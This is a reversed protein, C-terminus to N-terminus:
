GVTLLGYSPPVLFRVQPAQGREVGIGTSVYIANGDVESLGGAAVDRDVRETATVPPGFLPIAVQGGHTHGSIVLDVSSDDALETVADPSHALLLRLDDSASPLAELEAITRGPEPRAYFFELGGIIVTRGGASTRVIDNELFTHGADETARALLDVEDVNGPVVYVGGPADLTALLDTIEPLAREWETRSSQFVDGVVVILDPAAATVREVADREYSGVDDTQIDAVVAITLPEDADPAEGSLPDDVVVSVTDERLDFPAVFSAWYGLAAPLMAVAGLAGTWGPSREGVRIRAVWTRALVWAGVIPVGVTLTLYAVHAVGFGDLGGEARSIAVTAVATGLVVTMVAATLAGPGPQGSPRPRREIRRLVSDIERESPADELWQSMRRRRRAGVARVAEMVAISLAATVVSSLLIETSLGVAPARYRAPVGDRADGM